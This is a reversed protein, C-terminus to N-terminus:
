PSEAVDLRDDSRNNNKGTGPNPLVHWFTYINLQSVDTQLAHDNERKVFHRRYPHTNNKEIKRLGAGTQFLYCCKIRYNSAACGVLGTCLLVIFVSASYILNDCCYILTNILTLVGPDRCPDQYAVTVLLGIINTDVFTPYGDVCGNADRFSPLLLWPEDWGRRQPIQQAVHRESRHSYVPGGTTFVRFLCLHCSSLLEFCTRLDTSSWLWSVDKHYM